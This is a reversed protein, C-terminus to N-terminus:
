RPYRDPLPRQPTPVDQMESESLTHYYHCYSPLTWTGADKDYEALESRIFLNVFAEIARYQTIHNKALIFIKGDKAGIYYETDGLEETIARVSDRNPNGVFIEKLSDEDEPTFMDDKLQLSIGTQERIVKHLDTVQQSMWFNANQSQIMTFERYKCELTPATFDLTSPLYFYGEGANADDAQLFTQTLYYLASILMIDSNAKILLDGDGDFGVYFNSAHLTDAFTADDNALGIVIYRTADTNEESFDFGTKEEIATCFAQTAAVVEASASPSTHLAFDSEGELVLPVNKELLNKLKGGFSAAKEGATSHLDFGPLGAACSSLALCLLLLLSLTSILRKKM